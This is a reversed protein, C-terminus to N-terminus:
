ISKKLNAVAAIHIVKNAEGTFAVSPGGNTTNATVSITWDEFGDPLVLIRPTGVLEVTAKGVGRKIGGNIIFVADEDEVDKRQAVAEIQYAYSTNDVLEIENEEEDLVLTVPTASTSSGILKYDIGLDAAEKKLSVQTIDDESTFFAKAETSLLAYEEGTIKKGKRVAINADKYTAKGTLIYSRSM